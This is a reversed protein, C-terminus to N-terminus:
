WIKCIDLAAEVNLAVTSDQYAVLRVIDAAALELAVSGAVETPNASTTAPWRNALYRSDILTGNVSIGLRRFQGTAHFAYQISANIQYWGAGGTPITIRDPNAGGTDALGGIDTVEADFDIDVPTPTGAVSFASATVRARFQTASHIQGASEIRLAETGATAFGLTDDAPFYMGSDDRNVVDCSYFPTAASGGIAARLQTQRFMLMDNGNVTLGLENAAHHYFGLDTSGLFAVSPATPSGNPVVGLGEASLRVRELSNTSFSLQSAASRYLGANADIVPPDAGTALGIRPAAPTGGGIILAGIAQGDSNVNFGGFAKSYNDMRGHAGTYQGSVFPTDSPETLMEYYEDGDFFTHLNDTVAGTFISGNWTVEAIDFIQTAASASISVSGNIDMAVYRTGSGGSSGKQQAVVSTRAGVLSMTGASIDLLAPNGGNITVVVSNRGIRGTESPTVIASDDLYLMDQAFAANPGNIARFEANISNFRERITEFNTDLDPATDFYKSPDALGQGGTFDVFYDNGIVIDAPM